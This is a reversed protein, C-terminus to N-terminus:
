ADQVRFGEALCVGVEVLRIRARVVGPRFIAIHCRQGERYTLLGAVNVTM